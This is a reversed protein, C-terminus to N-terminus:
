RSAVTEGETLAPQTQGARVAIRKPKAAEAKPLTITLVGADYSAQAAEANVVMPLSVALQYSGERLGRSHWTIGHEQDGDYFQQTGKLTLVGQNVTVEIQNPDAGPIAARVVIDDGSEYLDFPFSAVTGATLSGPRVFSDNLLHSMAERLSVMEACPDWRTLM